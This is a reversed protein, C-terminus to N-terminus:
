RKLGGAAQFHGYCLGNSYVARDCQVGDVMTQCRKYPKGTLPSKRETFEKM